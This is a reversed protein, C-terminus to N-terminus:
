GIQEISIGGSRLRRVLSGRHRRAQARRWAALDVINRAVPAPDAVALIPNDRCQQIFTAGLQCTSSDHAGSCLHCCNM